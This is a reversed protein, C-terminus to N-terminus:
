KKSRDIQELRLVRFLLYTAFCLILFNIIVSLFDGIKFGGLSFNELQVKPSLFLSVFPTIIDDTLAQVVKGVAGGLIFGVAFGAVGRERVFDWFGGMTSRPLALITREQWSKEPRVEHDLM